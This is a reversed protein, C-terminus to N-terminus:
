KKWIVVATSDNLNFNAQCAQNTRFSWRCVTDCTANLMYLPADFAAGNDFLWFYDNNKLYRKVSTYDKNATQMATIKAQICATEISPPPTCGMHNKECATIGLCTCVFLLILKKM